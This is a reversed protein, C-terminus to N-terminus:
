SEKPKADLCEETRGIRWGEIRGNEDSIPDTPDFSTYHYRRIEWTEQILLVKEDGGCTLFGKEREGRWGTRATFRDSGECHM